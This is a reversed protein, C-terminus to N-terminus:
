REQSSTDLYKYSVDAISFLIPISHLYILVKVDM